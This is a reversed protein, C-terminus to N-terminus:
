SGTDKPILDCIKLYATFSPHTDDYPRKSSDRLTWYIVVLEDDTLDEPTAKGSEIQSIRWAM